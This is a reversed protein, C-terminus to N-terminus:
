IYTRCALNISHIDQIMCCNKTSSWHAQRLFYIFTSNLKKYILPKLQSIRVLAFTASFKHHLSKDGSQMLKKKKIEFMRISLIVPSCANDRRIHLKHTHLNVHTHQKGTNPYVTIHFSHYCSLLALLTSIHELQFRVCNEFANNKLKAQSM